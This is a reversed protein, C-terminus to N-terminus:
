ITCRIIDHKVEVQYKPNRSAIIERIEYIGNWSVSQSGNLVSLKFGGNARMREEKRGIDM